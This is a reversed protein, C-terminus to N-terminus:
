SKQLRGTVDFLSGGRVRSASVRFEGKKKQIKHSKTKFFSARKGDGTTSSGYTSPGGKRAKPVRGQLRSTDALHTSGKADSAHGTLRHQETVSKDTPGSVSTM